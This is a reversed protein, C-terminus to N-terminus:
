EFRKVKRSGGVGALNLSLRSWPHRRVRSNKLRRYEHIRADLADYIMEHHIQELRGEFASPHLTSWSSFMLEVPRDGGLVRQSHQLIYM